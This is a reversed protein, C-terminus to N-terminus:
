CSRGAAPDPLQRVIRRAEADCVGCTSWLWAIESNDAFLAQRCLTSVLTGASYALAGDPRRDTSAHRLGVAPVWHFPYM